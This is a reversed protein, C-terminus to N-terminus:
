RFVIPSCTERYTESPLYQQWEEQTLNRTLRHCAENILDQPQWLLVQATNDYSATALYKGNSSFAVGQVGSKHSIRAVEQSTAVEWIRATKDWGATALYKGDPSYAVDNVANNVGHEHTIQAVERGTAVEWIRATNDWGATALYKGNPNFAIATPGRPHHMHAIEQGTALEWVQVTIDDDGSGTAMYRGDPSFAIASGARELSRRIVERGTAVEWVIATSEASATALYRGDPSFVADNVRDKHLIRIVERSSAVEWVRATQDWSATALYRGDSSFTVTNIGYGPHVMRGVEAGTSLQWVRATNDESATALYKGDPSIDVDQVGYGPHTVQLVNGGSVIEWVQATNEWGATAIRKGDSNFTLLRGSSNNIRLVEESTDVDWIRSCGDASATALYSGEPSFLVNTVKYREHDLHFLKRGTDVEWVWAGGNDDGTALRSGDPSFHISNVQFKHEIEIVKRGTTAEWLSVLGSNDHMLTALYKGNPSFTVNRVSNEHTMNQLEEGTLTAWLRVTKDSSATALYQNDPSFALSNVWGKDHRMRRIEKGTAIDWMRVLPSRSATALYKGNPSFTVAEIFKEHEIQASKQGTGTEWIQLTPSLGATALYKGNPSFVIHQVEYEHNLHMAEQGSTIQWLRVNHDNKSTSALYNSDPNFAIATIIGDHEIHAVPQPLLSLGHRLAQDAELSRIGVSSFRQMAEVALLIGRELLNAQQNQVLESQAALQRSLALEQNEIANERQRNAEERLGNFVISALISVVLLSGFGLWRLQVNRRKREVSKRVFEMELSNFWSNNSDKIQKLTELRSNTNWLDTKTEKWSKAAPTLLQQIALTEQEERIWGQLRGWGRVLFDHAPEVYAEGAEDGGIILRARDLRKLVEEVRKNEAKDPYVLETRPVRRKVAETGELEVMRLMVRQITAQHADDPLRDYEGNARRALLGAVGGQADFEKDISLARDEKGEKSWANYLKFYLESLTFSLLPLAGPMQVVEDVLRDVLNAPEFYLAMENAPGIVAERLEDSRMPRVVFRAKAWDAHLVSEQFRPGFDSRVTVILHLQPCTKLADSLLETFAQWRPKNKSQEPQLAQTGSQKSRKKGKLFNFWSQKQAQSEQTIKPELTILEEFQDIVLLLKKDPYQQARDAILKHFYEPSTKCKEGVQRLKLPDTKPPCVANALASYPDAGPRVVTLIQWIESQQKKLRPLLGAKVLSSKGSGSIGDVVTFKQEPRSIHTVLEDIVEQRGFFFRAHREEFSELGRYPNNDKELKPANKLKLQDDPVLQFIYEGRDHKMLPWFGPTQREKSNKEVYDRLYLYLEPTTIVGDPILDAKQELLGEFLAEAFPSHQGSTGTGRNDLYDLAEQNHAASTIVQWAPYKIFRHYHEWHITEPVVIAKRTSAWRFMGAFCCDLIVLLHRCNLRNLSQYLERMSLLSDPNNSDADQPVLFGQPGQDSIQRTIGHGGFYILLRDQFTPKVQKPLTENFLWRLQKLAADTDLIASPTNLDPHILTYHHVRKLIEALKQADAVATSLPNIGNHYQNIGIIVALNRKFNTM